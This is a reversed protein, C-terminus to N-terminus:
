APGYNWGYEARAAELSVKRDRVDDQVRDRPRRLPDGYGAGGATEIELLEGPQLVVIQKSKLEQTSGDSRHVRAAAGAGDHGGAVGWPRTFHREGRYSIEVATGVAEFSKVFGLGGRWEGAGGSDTRLRWHNIRLPFDLEVSEAPLNMCNTADTEIADIGDKGPRAGMGGAGLESTIFRHGDRPDNGSLSMVVLEGSNAAPLRGPLAQHLAGFIADTIRKVTATRANVPAPWRPNVLSGEPLKVEIARYCGGNNPIEPDTVAKVCYYVAALTSSPVANLPGRSQASTGTFDVMFHDGDITVTATIQLRRDLEVGDNDLYDTFTYTGDPIEVVKARALQEANDLLTEFLFLSQEVGLEEVLAAVRLSGSRGAAV